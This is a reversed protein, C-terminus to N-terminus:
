QKIGKKITNFIEGWSETFSEVTYKGELSKAAKKGMDKAMDPNDLLIKIKQKMELLDMCMYGNVGDEIVDNLEDSMTVIACGCLMAEKLSSCTTTNMNVYIKTKNYEDTLEHVTNCHNSFDRFKGIPKIDPFESSVFDWIANLRPDADRNHVVTMLDNDRQEDKDYFYDRSVPDEITISNMFGWMKQCTNNDFVNIDASIRKIEETKENYEKSSPPPYRELLITPIQLINSINQIVAWDTSRNQGIAVDFNLATLFQYNTADKGLLYINEPREEISKEWVTDQLMPCYFTHGTKALFSEYRENGHMLLINLTDEQDNNCASIIRKTLNM